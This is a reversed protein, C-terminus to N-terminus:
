DSNQQEDGAEDLFEMLWEMELITEGIELPLMNKEHKLYTLFVTRLKRSLHQPPVFEFLTELRSLTQRSINKSKRSFKKAKM